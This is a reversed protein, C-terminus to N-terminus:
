DPMSRAEALDFDSWQWAQEFREHVQEAEASRDQARLAQELGFLSWGNEPFIELDGAFSAEAEAYRGAALQVAGLQLRVPLLWDPPENYNLQDEAAVGAVFEQIAAELDGRGRFLEGRLSHVAVSIVNSAPNIGWLVVEELRSDQALMELAELELGALDLAGKALLARGRAYHWIATPYPLAAPPEAQNMIVDWEAFRVSNLLPAVIFQQMFNLAELQEHDARSAAQEAALRAMGAAGELGATMVTFHWNHPVYGLPYIGNSGRCIGLFAIDADTAKFNILTADHYRGIRIYTHAPMHVLHGSGPALDAIRDAYPEARQPEPSAETAHIYLHIAGIHDPTRALVSELNALLEDTYETAQGNDDWYSWPSLDMLSEALLTAAHDHDPFREVVKRMADAYAHDLFSRDEPQTKEYRLALAEILAQEPPTAEAILALAKRSMEFAPDVAEPLMPQNINPGLVLAQGWYCIGCAPDLRAAEAFSRGAAEHNFGFALRLGQDFWRQTQPNSTSIPWSLKGLTEFLFVDKDSFTATEPAGTAVRTESSEEARQCAVLSLLLLLIPLPRM